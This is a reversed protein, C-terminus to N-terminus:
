GLARGVWMRVKGRQLGARTRKQQNLISVLKAEQAVVAALSEALEESEQESRPLLRAKLRQLTMYYLDACSGGRVAQQADGADRDGQGPAWGGRVKRRQLVSLQYTLEVVEDGGGM